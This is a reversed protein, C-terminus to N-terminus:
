SSLLSEYDASPAYQEVAELCPIHDIRIEPDAGVAATTSPQRTASAAAEVGRRVPM